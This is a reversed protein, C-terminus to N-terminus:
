CHRTKRRQSILAVIRLVGDGVSKLNDVRCAIHSAAMQELKAGVETGDLLVAEAVDLRAAHNLKRREGVGANRQGVQQKAKRDHSPPCAYVVSLVQAGFTIM